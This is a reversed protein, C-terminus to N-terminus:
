CTVKSFGSIRQEESSNPGRLIRWAHRFILNGLLHPICPSLNMGPLWFDFSACHPNLCRFAQLPPRVSHLCFSCQGHLHFDAHQAAIIWHEMLGAFKCLFSSSCLFKICICEYVYPKICPYSLEASFWCPNKEARCNTCKETKSPVATNLLAMHRCFVPPNLSLAIRVIAGPLM